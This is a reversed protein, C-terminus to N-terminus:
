KIKKELEGVKKRLADVTPLVGTDEILQLMNNAHSIDDNLKM